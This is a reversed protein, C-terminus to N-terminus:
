RRLIRPPRCRNVVAPGAVFAEIPDAAEAGDTSAAEPETKKPLSRATGYKGTRKGNGNSSASDSLQRRLEGVLDVGVGAMEAIWRDSKGAWEKDALLM